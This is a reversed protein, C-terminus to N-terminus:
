DRRRARSPRPRQPTPEAVRESSVPRILPSEPQRSATATAIDKQESLKRIFEPSATVSFSGINKYVKWYSPAVGVQDKVDELLRVVRAEVEAPPIVGGRSGTQLSFSAGVPEEGGSAELQRILECDVKARSM